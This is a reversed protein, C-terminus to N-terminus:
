RPLKPQARDLEQQLEMRQAEPMMSFPDGLVKQFHGLISLAVLTTILLSAGMRFIVGAVQVGARYKDGHEAAQLSAAEALDGTKEGTALLAIEEPGTGPIERAAESFTAGEALHDLMREGAAATEPEGPARMSLTIAERLGLGCELAAALAGFVLALRRRRLLTSLGPLWAGVRLGFPQVKPHRLVIPAVVGVLVGAVVILALSALVDSLYAGLGHTFLKAVPLLVCALLLVLSPYLLSMLIKNRVELLIELRQQLRDFLEGLRGTAEATEVLAVETSDFVTPHAAMAQSLSQGDSVDDSMTTLANALPGRRAVARLSTLADTITIGKDLMRGGERFFLIRHRLSPPRLRWGTATARAAARAQSSAVRAAQRGGSAARDAAKAAVKRARRAVEESGSKASKASKASKGSSGGPRAAAAKAKAVIVGCRACEIAQPQDFGCKPCIM